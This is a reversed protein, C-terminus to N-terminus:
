LMSIEIRKRALKLNTKPNENVDNDGDIDSDDDDAYHDDEDCTALFVENESKDEVDDNSEYEQMWSDPSTTGNSGRGASTTSLLSRSSRPSSPTLSVPTNYSSCEDSSSSSSTTSPVPSPSDARRTPKTRFTTTKQQLKSTTTTKKLSNSKETDEPAYNASYKSNETNNNAALDKSNLTDNNLSRTVAEALPRMEKSEQERNMISSGAALCEAGFWLQSDRDYDPYWGRVDILSLEDM